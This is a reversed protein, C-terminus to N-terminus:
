DEEVQVLELDCDVCKLRIEKTSKIELYCAPCYYVKSKKKKKSPEKPGKELPEGQINSPSRYLSFAQENLKFEKILTKTIDNSKSPSWGITNDREVILGHEEACKKFAKNHYTGARSVDKINNLLNYLHVMEHLLTAMIDEIPRFMYEAILNIEYRKEEAKERDKWIPRVTCWGLVNKRNGQAMILIAPEPLSNKYYFENFTAFARHLENISDNINAM